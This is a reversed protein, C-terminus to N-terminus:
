AVGVGLRSYYCYSRRVFKSSLLSVLLAYNLIRCYHITISSRRLIHLVNIESETEYHHSICANSRPMHFKTPLYIMFVCM